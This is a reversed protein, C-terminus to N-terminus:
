FIYIYIKENTVYKSNLKSQFVMNKTIYELFDGGGELQYCYLSQVPLM